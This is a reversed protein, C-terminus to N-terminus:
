YHHVSESQTLSSYCFSLPLRVFHPEIEGGASGRIVHLRVNLWGFLPEMVSCSGLQRKEREHEMGVTHKGDEPPFHAAEDGFM